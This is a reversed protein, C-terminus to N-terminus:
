VSDNVDLRSENGISGIRAFTKLAEANGGLWSTELGEVTRLSRFARFLM